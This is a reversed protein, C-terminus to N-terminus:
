GSHIAVLLGCINGISSSASSLLWKLNTVEPLMQLCYFDSYAFRNITYKGRTPQTKKEKRFRQDSNFTRWGLLKFSTMQM